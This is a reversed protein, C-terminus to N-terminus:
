NAEIVASSNIKHRINGGVALFFVVGTEGGLGIFLSIVVVDDLGDGDHASAAGSVAFAVVKAITTKLVHGAGGYRLLAFFVAGADDIRDEVFLFFLPIASVVVAITESGCRLMKSKIGGIKGGRPGLRIGGDGARGTGALEEGISKCPSQRSWEKGRNCLRIRNHQSAM